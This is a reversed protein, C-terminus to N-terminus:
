DGSTKTPAPSGAAPTSEGPGPARPAGPGGGSPAPAGPRAGPQTAAGTLGTVWRGDRWYVAAPDVGMADALESVEPDRLPEGGDAVIQASWSRQIGQLLRSEFRLQAALQDVTLRPGPHGQCNTCLRYEPPNTGFKKVIRTNACESCPWRAAEAEIVRLGGTDGVDSLLREYRQILQRVGPEKLLQQAAVGEGSRVLGLVTAARYADAPSGGAMGAEQSAKKFRPDVARGLAVLWKRDRELGALDALALCASGALRAAGGERRDLEFALVFLQQALRRDAPTQYLDAVEEGLRFYDMPRAPDLKELRELMAPPLTLEGAASAAAPVAVDRRPTQSAPSAPGAPSGPQAAAVMPMMVLLALALPWKM